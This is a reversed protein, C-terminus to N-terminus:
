AVVRVGEISMTDPSSSLLQVADECLVIAM